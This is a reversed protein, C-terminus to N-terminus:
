PAIVMLADSEGTLMGNSLQTDSGAVLLEPDITLMFTNPSLSGENLAYCRIVNVGPNLPISLRTGGKTLTLDEAGEVTEGNVTLCIRDGDETGWDGILFRIIPQNITVPTLGMPPLPDPTPAPTVIPEPEPSFPVVTPGVYPAPTEEVFPTAVLQRPAPTTVPLAAVETAPVATAAPSAPMGSLSQGFRGLPGGLPSEPAMLNGTCATLLIPLLPWLRRM